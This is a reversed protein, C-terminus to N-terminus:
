VAKKIPTNPICFSNKWKNVAKKLKHSKGIGVSAKIVNIRPIEKELNRLLWERNAIREIELSFKNYIEDSDLKECSKLIEVERSPRDLSYINSYQDILDPDFTNISSPLYNYKNSRFTRLLEFDSENYTGSKVMINEVWKLGGKVYNMNSILNFLPQYSLHGGNAFDNLVSSIECAKEFDYHQKIEIKASEQYDRITNYSPLTNTGNEFLENNRVRTRKSAKANIINQLHIFVEQLINPEDNLVYSKNSGYFMRAADKCAKDSDKVIHMLALQIKDRLKRNNIVEDFIIVLRFKRHQPTDSFSPYYINTKIGYQELLNIKEKHDQNDDFDLAFVYTGIFNNNVRKDDKFFSPTFTQGKGLAESLESISLEVCNINKSIVGIENNKPKSEFQKDNLSVKFIFPNM